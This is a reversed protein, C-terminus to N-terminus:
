IYEASMLSWNQKTHIIHLKIFTFELPSASYANTQKLEQLPFCPHGAHYMNYFSLCCLFQLKITTICCNYQHPTVQLTEGIVM